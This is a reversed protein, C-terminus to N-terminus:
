DTLREALACGTVGVLALAAVVTATLGYAAAGVLSGLFLLWGVVAIALYYRSWSRNSEDAESDLYASLAPLAPGPEIIGRDKDFSLVGIDDMKPLHCQYLGVYVRKREKSSLAEATTDYELAAIHEALDGLSIREDHDVLFRVLHRRRQNKLLEFTLDLSLSPEPEVAEDDVTAETEVGSATEGGVPEGRTETSEDTAEGGREQATTEM